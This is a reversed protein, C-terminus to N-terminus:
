ETLKMLKHREILRGVKDLNNLKNAYLQEYCARIIRKIEKLNTTINERENRIKTM